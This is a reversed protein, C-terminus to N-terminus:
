AARPIEDGGRELRGSSSRGSSSRGSSSRSESFALAEAHKNNLGNPAQLAVPKLRGPVMEHLMVFKELIRNVSTVMSQFEIPFGNSDLFAPNSAAISDTNIRSIADALRDLPRVSAEIVAMLAVIGSALAAWLLLSDYRPSTPVKTILHVSLGSSNIAISQHLYSKFLTTSELKQVQLWPLSRLQQAQLEPDFRLLAEASPIILSRKPSSVVIMQGPSSSQDVIEQLLRGEESESNSAQSFESIPGSSAQLVSEVAPSLVSWPNALHGQLRVVGVEAFWGGALGVALVGFSCLQLRQRMSFSTPESFAM